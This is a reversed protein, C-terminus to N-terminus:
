FFGVRPASNLPGDIFGDKVTPVRRLEKPMEAHRFMACRALYSYLGRNM